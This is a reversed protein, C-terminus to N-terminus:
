EVVDVGNSQTKCGLAVKGVLNGWRGEKLALHRCGADGDGDNAHAAAKSTTGSIGLLEPVKNGFGARAPALNRIIPEVDITVVMGSRVVQVGRVHLSGTEEILVNAVKIGREKIQRGLGSRYADVTPCSSFM